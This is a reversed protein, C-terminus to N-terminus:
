VSLPKDSSLKKTELAISCHQSGLIVYRIFNMRMYSLIHKYFIGWYKPCDLTFYNFSVDAHMVINDIM